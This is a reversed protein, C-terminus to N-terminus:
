WGLLPDDETWRRAQECMLVSMSRSGEYTSRIWRTDNGETQVLLRLYALAEGSGLTAAYSRIADLTTLV